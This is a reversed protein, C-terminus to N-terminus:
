GKKPPKLETEHRSSDKTSSKARNENWWKLKSARQAPAACEESCYKQGKKTAFFYPALCDPNGCHRADVIRRRLYYFVAELATARAPPDSFRYVIWPAYDTTWGEPKESHMYQALSEADRVYWERERLTPADWGKRVLFSLYSFSAVMAWQQSLPGPRPVIDPYRKNLLRFTAAAIDRDGKTHPVHNTGLNACDRLFAEARKASLVGLIQHEHKESSNM